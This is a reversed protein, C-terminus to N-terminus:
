QCQLAEKVLKMNEKYSVSYYRYVFGLIDVDYQWRSYGLIQRLTLLRSLPIERLRWIYRQYRALVKEDYCDPLNCVVKYVTGDIMLTKLRILNTVCNCLYNYFKSIGMSQALEYSARVRNNLVKKIGKETTSLPKLIQFVYSEVTLGGMGCLDSIDKRNKFERGENLALILTFVADIDGSYGQVVYDFLPKSLGKDKPVFADYLYIFDARRLYNIYFDYVEEVGKLSDKFQKFTSYKNCTCFFVCSSSDKIIEVLGKDKLKDIDISVFWRQSFPPTTHMVQKVRKIDKKIVVSLSSDNNCQYHRKVKDEIFMSLKTCPTQVLVVTPNASSRDLSSLLM